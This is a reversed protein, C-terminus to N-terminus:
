KNMFESDKLYEKIEDENELVRYKIKKGSIELKVIKDNFTKNETYKNYEKKSVCIFTNETIPIEEYFLLTNIKSIIGQILEKFM